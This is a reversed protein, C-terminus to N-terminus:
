GHLDCLLISFPLSLQVDPPVVLSIWCMYKFVVLVHM